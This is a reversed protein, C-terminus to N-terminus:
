SILCEYRNKLPAQCSVVSAKALVEMADLYGAGILGDRKVLSLETCGLIIADAGSRRLEESVEHFKNMDAPIGAKIDDYILE